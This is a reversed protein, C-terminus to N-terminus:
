AKGDGLIRGARFTHHGDLIHVVHGVKARIGTANIREGDQSVTNKRDHGVNWFLHGNHQYLGTLRIQGIRGLNHCGIYTGFLSQMDKIALYINCTSDRHLRSYSSHCRWFYFSGKGTNLIVCAFLESSCKGGCCEQRRMFMLLCSDRAYGILSHIAIM